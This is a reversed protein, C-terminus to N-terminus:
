KAPETPKVVEVPRGDVLDPAAVRIVREAGDLGGSVLLATGTDREITVVVRLGSLKM